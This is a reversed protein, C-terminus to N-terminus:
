HTTDQHIFVVGHIYVPNIKWCGKAPRRYSDHFETALRARINRKRQVVGLEVLEPLHRRETPEVGRGFYAKTIPGNM